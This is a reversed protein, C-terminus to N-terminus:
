RLGDSARCTQPAQRFLGRRDLRALRTQGSSPAHVFQAMGWISAWTVRAGPRTSSCSILWTAPETRPHARKAKAPRGRHPAGLNGGAPARLVRSRQLRLRVADRRRLSLPVWVMSSPRGRRRNEGPPRGAAAVPTRGTLSCGAASSPSSYRAVRRPLGDPPRPAHAAERSQATSARLIMAAFGLLVECRRAPRSPGNRNRATPDCTALYARARNTKRACARMFPGISECTDVMARRIM